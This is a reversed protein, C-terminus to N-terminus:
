RISEVRDREKTAQWVLYRADRLDVPHGDCDDHNSSGDGKCCLWYTFLSLDLFFSFIFVVVDLM